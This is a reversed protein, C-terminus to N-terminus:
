VRSLADLRETLLRVSSTRPSTSCRLASSSFSSFYSSPTSSVTIPPQLSMRAFGRPSLQSDDKKTLMTMSFALPM